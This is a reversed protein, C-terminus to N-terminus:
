QRSAITEKKDLKVKIFEKLAALGAVGSIFCMPLHYLWEKRKEVILGRITNILPGIITLAYIPWLWKKIKRKRSLYKERAGIGYPKKLLANAVAWRQKKFFHKIGRISHHYLGASPVYAIKQGKEIMELVPLVDCFENSPSRKFSKRVTFGQAFAMIPHNELTYDYIIYDKNKELTKFVRHFTRMNAASGYVFHNFPDTFTNVYKTLWNDNRSSIQIPFAAMVLPDHFPKMMKILWDKGKLVNDHALILCIERSAKQLGLYIGPEALKKPNHIIRCGYQKAIELTRDQSGGDVVLIEIKDQPYKQRKISNLTEIYQESNFTPM